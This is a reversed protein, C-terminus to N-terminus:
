PLILRADVFGVIDAFSPCQALILEGHKGERWQPREVVKAFFDDRKQPTLKHDKHDVPPSAVRACVDVFSEVNRDLLRVSVNAPRSEWTNLVWDEFACRRSDLDEPLSDREVQMVNQIRDDDFVGIVHSYGCLPRDVKGQIAKLLNGSGKMPKAIVQEAIRERLCRDSNWDDCAQRRRDALCAVLMRHPGFNDPPYGPAPADEWLVIIAM